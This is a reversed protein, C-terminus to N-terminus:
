SPWKHCSKVRSSLPQFPMVLILCIFYVSIQDTLSNIDASLLGVSVVKSNLQQQLKQQQVTLRQVESIVNRLHREKASHKEKLKEVDGAVTASVTWCKL